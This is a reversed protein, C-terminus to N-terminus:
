SAIYVETLQRQEFVFTLETIGGGYFSYTLPDDEGGVISNAIGVTDSIDEPTADFGIGYVSFDAPASLRDFRLSTVTGNGDDAAQAYSGDPFSLTGASLTFDPNEDLSLPLPHNAGCYFISDLLESGNWGRVLLYPSETETESVTESTQSVEEADNGCGSLILAATAALVAFIKRKM